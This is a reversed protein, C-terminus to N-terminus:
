EISTSASQVQSGDLRPEINLKSVLQPERIKDFHIM